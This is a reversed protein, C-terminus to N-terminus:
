AARWCRGASGACPSSPAAACRSPAIGSRPTQSHPESRRSRSLGVSVPNPKSWLWEVDARVLEM